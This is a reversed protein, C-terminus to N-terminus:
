FSFSASSSFALFLSISIFSICAYSGDISSSSKSWSLSPKLGSTYLYTLFFLSKLTMVFMALAEKNLILFRHGTYAMFIFCKFSCFVSSVKTESDFCLSWFPLGIGSRSGLLFSTSTIFFSSKKSYTSMSIPRLRYTSKGSSAYFSSYISWLIPAKAITIMSLLSAFTIKSSIRM